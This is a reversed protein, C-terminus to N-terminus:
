QQPQGSSAAELRAQNLASLMQSLNIMTEAAFHWAPRPLKVGALMPHPVDMLEDPNQDNMGCFIRAAREFPKLHSFDFEIAQNPDHGNM